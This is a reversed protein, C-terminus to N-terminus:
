SLLYSELRLILRKFSVTLTSFLVFSMWDLNCSTICCPRWKRSINVSSWRLNPLKSVSAWHKWESVYIWSWCHHRLRFFTLVWCLYLCNERWFLICLRLDRTFYCFFSIFNEKRYLSCSDNPFRWNITTSILDTVVTLPLKNMTM